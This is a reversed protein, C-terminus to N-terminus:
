LNTRRASLREHIFEPPSNSYRAGVGVSTPPFTMDPLFNNCVPVWPLTTGLRGFNHVGFHMWPPHLMHTSITRKSVADVLDKGLPVRLLKVLWDCLRTLTTRSEFFCTGMGNYQVGTSIYM